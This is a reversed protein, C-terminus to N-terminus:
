INRLFEEMVSSYIEPQEHHVLHSAFPVVAAHINSNQKPYLVAGKTELPNGEGVMYLVPMQLESLDGTEAFPYWNEDQGMLIFRRWGKGHIEDNYAAAEENELLTMQNKSDQEHMKSWNEPKEPFIGSLVLSKIREPHKKAFFLAALAGLSSGAINVQPLELHDLTEALDRACDNFFDSLDNAASKGHGRLDPVIIEYREMFYQQQYEFDTTGTQLGSHLFVLPEGKGRREIHLLM